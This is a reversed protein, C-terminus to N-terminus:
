PISFNNSMTPIQTSPPLSVMDNEGQKVIMEHQDIKIYALYKEGKGGRARLNTM